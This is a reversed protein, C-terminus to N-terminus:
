LESWLTEGDYRALVADAAELGGGGRIAQLVHPGGPALGLVGPAELRLWVVDAHRRVLAELQRVSVASLYQLMMSSWVVVPSAGSTQLQAELWAVADAEDVAPRPALALASNLLRLRAPEDDFVFARLRQEDRVPSLDCGRRASITPLRPEFPLLGCFVLPISVSSRGADPMWCEFHFQDVLLNLGASSGLELLRVSKGEFLPAVYQTLGFFLAASRTVENTQPFSALFPVCLNEELRLLTCVDDSSSDLKGELELYRILGALRVAFADVESVETPLFPVSALDLSALHLMLEGMAASNVRGSFSKLDDVLSRM